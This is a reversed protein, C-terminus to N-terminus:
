DTIASGDPRNSTSIMMLKPNGDVKEFNNVLIMIQIRNVIKVNFVGLFTVLKNVHVM